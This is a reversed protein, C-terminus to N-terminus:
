NKQAAGIKYGIKYLSVVEVWLYLNRVDGFRRAGRYNGVM